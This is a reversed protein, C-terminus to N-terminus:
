WGFKSNYAPVRQPFGGPRGRARIDVSHHLVDRRGFHFRFCVFPLGSRYSIVPSTGRLEWDRGM